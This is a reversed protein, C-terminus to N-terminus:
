LKNFKAQESAIFQQVEAGMANLHKHMITTLPTKIQVVFEEPLNKLVDQIAPAGCAVMLGDVADMIKQEDIM